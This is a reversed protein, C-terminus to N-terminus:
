ATLVQLAQGAPLFGPHPVKNRAIIEDARNTDEYLDYASVLAPLPKALYINKVRELSAARTTVDKIMAARLGEIELYAQDDDTSGLVLLEDDLSDALENRLAVADDYSAFDIEAATNAMGVLAARKTLHVLADQNAAQQARTTTTPQVPTFSDGFALLNKYAIYADSPDEYIDQISAVLATVQDAFDEPERILTSIDSEFSGVSDLLEAAPDELRTRLSAATTIASAILSSIGSADDSVFAPLGSVNFTNSFVSKIASTAKQGAQNVSYKTDTLQSPYRNEGSESFELDFYSIGGEKNSFGNRCPGPIVQITGLDPHVLTGPESKAEIAKLLADRKTIYDDGIVYARITYKRAKRGLDESYPTNRNPYEHLVNRRGFEMESGEVYFEVGRFSARRLQDKWTM